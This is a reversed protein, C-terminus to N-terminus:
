ISSLIEIAIYGLFRIADSVQDEKANHCGFHTAFAGGGGSCFDCPSQSSLARALIM